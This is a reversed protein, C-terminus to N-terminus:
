NTDSTVTGGTAAEAEDCPPRGWEGGRPVARTVRDEEARGSSPYMWGRGM